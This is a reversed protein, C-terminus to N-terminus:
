GKTRAKFFFALVVTKGKYDSLRIADKLVGYRTGGPLEFDPAVAGVELPPTAPVAAPPNQARATTAASVMLVSVVLGSVIRKM